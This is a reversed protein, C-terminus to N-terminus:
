LTYPAAAQSAEKKTNIMKENEHTFHFDSKPISNPLIFKHKQQNIPTLFHYSVLFTWFHFPFEQIM